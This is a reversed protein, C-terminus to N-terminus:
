IFTKPTYPRTHTHANLYLQVNPTLFHRLSEVHMQKSMCMQNKLLLVKKKMNQKNTKTEKKELLYRELLVIALCAASDLFM